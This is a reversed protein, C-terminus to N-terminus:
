RGILRAMLRAHLNPSFRPCYVVTASALVRYPRERATGVLLAVPGLLRGGLKRDKAVWAATEACDFLAPELAYAAAVADFPYFGDIGVVGNWYELWGRARRSVWAPAGGAGDLAALDAGSLTV